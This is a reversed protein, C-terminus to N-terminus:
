VKLVIKLSIRPKKKGNITKEKMRAPIKDNLFFAGMTTPISKPVIIVDLKNTVNKENLMPFNNKGIRLLLAVVAVRDELTVIFGNTFKEKGDIILESFAINAARTIPIISDKTAIGRM